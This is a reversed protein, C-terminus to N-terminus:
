WVLLNSYLPNCKTRTGDTLAKHDRHATTNPIVIIVVMAHLMLDRCKGHKNCNQIANGSM